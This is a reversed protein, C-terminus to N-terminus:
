RQDTLATPEQMLARAAAVIRAAADAAPTSATDVMLRAEDRPQYDRGVVDAWTPLAHNAIDAPRSEVRRRHEEADSCVIEVDLCACGAAAAVARWAGRTLPWPNVSDAVVIRGVRLNDAAVAYGVRYGEDTVDCAGDRLAQEISDIRVHVAGLLVAVERAVTTKGVGSRGSFVILM